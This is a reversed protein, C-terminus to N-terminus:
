KKLANGQQGKEKKVFGNKWTTVIAKYVNNYHSYLIEM